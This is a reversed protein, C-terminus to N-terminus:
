TKIHQQPVVNTLVNTWFTLKMSVYELCTEYIFISIYKLADFIHFIQISYKYLHAYLHLTSNRLALTYRKRQIAGTYKSPITLIVNRKFPGNCFINFVDCKLVNM